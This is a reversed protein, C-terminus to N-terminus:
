QRRSTVLQLHHREMVILIVLILLEPQLYQLLEEMGVILHHQHHIVRLKHMTLHSSIAKMAKIHHSHMVKNRDM